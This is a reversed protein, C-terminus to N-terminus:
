WGPTPPRDIPADMWAPPPATSADPRALGAREAQLAFLSPGPTPRRVADECIEFDRRSLEVWGPRLQEGWFRSDRTLELMDRLPRIPAIQADALWQVDHRWPSKGRGGVRYPADSLVRGAQVVSRLPEGDPNETRPCYLVVGDAEAMVNLPQEDGWPHQVFGGAVMERARDLPHVFMWYRIAM